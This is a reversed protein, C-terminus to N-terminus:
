IAEDKLAVVLQRAQTLGLTLASPDDIELMSGVRSCTCVSNMKDVTPAITGHDADYDLAEATLWEQIEPEITELLPMVLSRAYSGYAIGAVTAEAQPSQGRVPLAERAAAGSSRVLGLRRLKSVTYGNTGGAM